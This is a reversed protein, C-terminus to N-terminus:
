IWPLGRSAAVQVASLPPYSTATSPISFGFRRNTKSLRSKSKSSNSSVLSFQVTAQSYTGRSVMYGEQYMFGFSM